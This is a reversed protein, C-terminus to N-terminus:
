VLKRRLTEFVKAEIKDLRIQGSYSRLLEEDLARYEDLHGVLKGRVKAFCHDITWGTAGGLAGGLLPGISTEAGAINGIIGGGIMSGAKVIPTIYQELVSCNRSNQNLAKKELKGLEDSLLCEIKESINDLNKNGTMITWGQDPPTIQRTKKWFQRFLRGYDYFIDIASEVIGRAGLRPNAKMLAFLGIPPLAITINHDEGIEGAMQEKIEKSVTDTYLNQFHKRVTDAFSIAHLESLQKWRGAPVYLSNAGFSLQRVYTFRFRNILAGAASEASIKYLTPIKLASEIGDKGLSALGAVCKSGRFRSNLLFIIEDQSVTKNEKKTISNKLETIKEFFIRTSETDLPKDLSPFVPVNRDNPAASNPLVGLDDLAKLAAAKIFGIQEKENRPKIAGWFDNRYPTGRILKTTEKEIILLDKVPLTGDYSLRKSVIILELVWLAELLDSLKLEADPSSKESFVECALLISRQNLCSSGDLRQKLGDLKSEKNILPKWM